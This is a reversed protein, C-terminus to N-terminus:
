RDNEPKPQFKGFDRPIMQVIEHLFLMYDYNPNEGHVHELRKHLWELHQKVDANTRM